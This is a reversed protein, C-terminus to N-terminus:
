ALKAVTSPPGAIRLGDAAFVTWDEADYTYVSVIGANLAAAAHRAGHVRRATLRNKAALELTKLTGCFGRDLCCYGISIRDIIASSTSSRNSRPSARSEGM